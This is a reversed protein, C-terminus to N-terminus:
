EVLMSMISLSCYLLNAITIVPQFYLSQERHCKIFLLILDPERKENAGSLEIYLCQTAKLISPRSVINYM